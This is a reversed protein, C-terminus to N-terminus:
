AHIPEKPRVPVVTRRARHRDTLLVVVGPLAAVLAMVGYVVATTVGAAAGLGAAAFLWAAVGERPGWGAINAPISMAVLVVLALPLLRASSTDVGATRAAVWFTALHGVVALASALAVRPWRM